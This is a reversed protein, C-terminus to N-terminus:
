PAHQEGLGIGGAQHMERVEKAVEFIGLMLEPPIRSEANVRLVRWDAPRSDSGRALKVPRQLELLFEVDRYPDDFHGLSSDGVGALDGPVTFADRGARPLDGADGAQRVADLGGINRRM